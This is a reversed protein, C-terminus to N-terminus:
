VKVTVVKINYTKELDKASKLNAENDDFFVFTRYGLWALKSIITAKRKAVSGVLKMKPDGIAFVLEKKIEIGKKKFFNYIMDCDGRATIIGIHTGKRYERKLTQWYKTFEEKDDLKFYMLYIMHSFCIVGLLINLWTIKLLFYFCFALATLLVGLVITIINTKRFVSKGM